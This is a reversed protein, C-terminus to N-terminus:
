VRSLPHLNRIQTRRDLDAMRQAERARHTAAEFGTRMLARAAPSLSSSGRSSRRASRDDGRTRAGWTPSEGAIKKPSQERDPRDEAWKVIPHLPHSPDYLNFPKEIKRGFREVKEVFKTGRSNKPGKREEAEVFVRDFFSIDEVRSSAIRFAKAEDGGRKLVANAIKAWRKSKEPTDAEKDHKKADSATWPM